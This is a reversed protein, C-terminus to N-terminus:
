GPAESRQARRTMALIEYPSQGYASLNIITQGGGQRANYAQAEAPNLVREGAHLFAFGTHDMMGGLAFGPVDDGGGGGGGFSSTGSIAASDISPHVNVQISYDVPISAVASDIASTVPGTDISSASITVNASSRGDVTVANVSDILTTEMPTTTITAAEVTVDATSTGAPTVSTIATEINTQIQTEIAAIDMEITPAIDIAGGTVSLITDRLDSVMNLVLLQVSLGFNQFGAQALAMVLQIATWADNLGQGLAAWGESVSPLDTGTLSEILGIVADGIGVLGDFTADAVAGVLNQVGAGIEWLGETDGSALRAIGSVIQGLGETFQPLEGTTALLLTFGAVVLGIPSAVVALAAGLASVVPGLILLSVGLLAAGAVLAIIGGAVEPNANAWDTLGQVMPTLQAAIGGIAITLVGGVTIALEDASARLLDLQAQASTLQVERAAATAGDVGETFLALFESAGDATLATAARLAEVSGTIEAFNDSYGADALAQYVGDLGLADVAAQGTAFGLDSLAATMANNPNLLATMAAGLQTSAQAATAGQTTLYAMMGALEDFEIGMSNALGTVSPMAAAFDDMSGVGMNVTQTLVDSAYAADEAALGYSNMISILASTTAGLDANGAEATAIAANLIPIRSAADSVGGVIDYYAEAVAQPGARASGGIELIQANLAAAEEAGLQLISNVNTMAEDFQLAASVAYTFAATLPVTIGAMNAGLNTMSSGVSRMSDGFGSIRSQVSNMGQNFNAIDARVLVSLDAIQTM